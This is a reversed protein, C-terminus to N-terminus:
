PPGWSQSPVSAALTRRPVVKQGELLMVARERGFVAQAVMSPLPIFPRGLAAGLARALEASTTSSAPAVGNLVGQAHSAELAHALIGALDRIHIWPFFQHGSGMPGGLGLRFPLLMHGIAHGGRGLVAGLAAPLVTCSPGEAELRGWREQRSGRGRRDRM